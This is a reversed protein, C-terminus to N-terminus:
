KLNALGVEFDTGVMKDMNFIVHVVKAFYPLPGQMTWAVKTGDGQPELTFDVINHAEFPKVFDLKIRVKSPPSTDMIEMSGIGVNRDGEWAYLSGKGSATGGLTRKITPDKKDYPSWAGWNRFDSIAAFIREPPAKITTARVVSFTNPKTAALILLGAVAVVILLAVVIAITELM